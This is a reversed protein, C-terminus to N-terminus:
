ISNRFADVQNQLSSKILATAHVTFYTVGLNKLPNIQNWDSLFIGAVKDAQKIKPIIDKVLSVVEPHNPNDYGYSLSLDSTGIFIVDVGRVALIKDLNEVGQKSEIQISVVLDNNARQCVTSRNRFGFGAARTTSGYGRVGYPPFSAFEVAACAAEASDVQPVQVGDAGLDLASQILRANLEGVRVIFPLGVSTGARLCQDTSEVGFTGHELDLLAFDYGAYGVMETIQPSPLGLFTGLLVDRKLLREKLTM